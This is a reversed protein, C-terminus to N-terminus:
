DGANRRRAEELVAADMDDVSCRKGDTKPMAVVDSVQTTEFLPAGRPLVGDTVDEVVLRAGAPRDRHQRV